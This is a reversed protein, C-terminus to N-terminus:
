LPSDFSKFLRIFQSSINNPLLRFIGWAVVGKWLDLGIEKKWRMEYESFPLGENIVKIAIDACILGFYIGGGTTTKVQGACEGVFLTRDQYTSPASDLPVIKEKKDIIKKGALLGSLNYEGMSGVFGNGNPTPVVWGYGKKGLYVDVENPHSTIEYQVGVQSRMGASTQFGYALVTISAKHKEKDYSTGLYYRVGLKKAGEMLNQNLMPRDIICVRRKLTHRAGSPFVCNIHELEVTNVNVPILELCLPSIVGTCCVEKRVDEKKEVVVVEHGSEALKLAMYSGIPGAGVVLIETM